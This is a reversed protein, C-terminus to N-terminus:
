SVSRRCRPCLANENVVPQQYFANCKACLFLALRNPDESRTRRYNQTWYAERLVMGQPKRKIGLDWTYRTAIRIDEDAVDGIGRLARSIFAKFWSASLKRGYIVIRSVYGSPCSYCGITMRKEPLLKLTTREQCHGYCKSHGNLKKEVTKKM